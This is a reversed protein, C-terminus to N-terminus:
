AGLAAGKVDAVAAAGEGSTLLGAPDVGVVDQVPDETPAGVEVVESTTRAVGEPSWAILWSTATATSCGSGTM